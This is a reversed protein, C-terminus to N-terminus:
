HNPPTKYVHSFKTAMKKNLMVAHAGKSLNQQQALKRIVIRWLLTYHKHM